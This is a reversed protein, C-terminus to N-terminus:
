RRVHWITAEPFDAVIVLMDYEQTMEIIESNTLRLERGKRYEEKFGIIFSNEENRLEEVFGEIAKRDAIPPLGQTYNGM